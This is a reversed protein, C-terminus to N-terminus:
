WQVSQGTALLYPGQVLLSLLQAAIISAMAYRWAYGEELKFIEGVFTSYTSMCGCLGDSLAAAWLSASSFPAVKSSSAPYALRVIYFVANLISAFVNVAFTAWPFTLWLKNLRSTEYRIAAGLPGILAALWQERYTDRVYLLAVLLGFVGGWVLYACVLQVRYVVFFSVPLVKEAGIAEERESEPELSEISLSDRRSPADISGVGNSAEHSSM